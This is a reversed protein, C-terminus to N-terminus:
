LFKDSIILLLELIVSFMSVRSPWTEKTSKKTPSYLLPTLSLYNVKRSSAHDFNKGGSGLRGKQARGDGHFYNYNPLM